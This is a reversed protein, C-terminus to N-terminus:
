AGNPAMGRRRKVRRFLGFFLDSFVWATLMPDDWHADAWIMPGRLSKVWSAFTILSENRYELFARVDRGISVWGPTSVTKRVPASSLGILDQYALRGIDVGVSQGLEDWLGLRPNIEVLKAVGDREDIKLEVGCVGWFRLRALFAACQAELAEQSVVRVYSASGFHIPTVRIKRGTFSGLVKGARDLCLVVYLLNEDPGQIVEQAIMASGLGAALTYVHLLEEPSKAIVVKKEFFPSHSPLDAWSKSFEPKVLCPFRAEQAFAEVDSKSMPFCTRPMPFGHQSALSFTGRKSTLKTLLNGPPRSFRFMRSLAEGHRDIPVVFRDSTPILVAEEGLARGLEGMFDIWQDEAVLPDPCAMKAGYRSRFGIVSPDSDIGIAPTGEREFSRLLAVGPLYLGAVVLPTAHGRRRNLRALSRSIQDRVAM